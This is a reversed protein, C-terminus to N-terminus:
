HAKRGFVKPLLSGKIFSEREMNCDMKGNELMNEVMQLNFHELDMKKIMPINEKMFDVM